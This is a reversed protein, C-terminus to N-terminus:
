SYRKQQASANICSMPRSSLATFLHNRYDIIADAINLRNGVDILSQIDGYPDARVASSSAPASTDNQGPTPANPNPWPGVSYTQIRSVNSPKTSDFPLRTSPIQTPMCIIGFSAVLTQQFSKPPKIGVDLFEVTRRWGPARVQRM